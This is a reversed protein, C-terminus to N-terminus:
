TTSCSTVLLGMRSANLKALVRNNSLLVDSYLRNYKVINLNTGCLITCTMHTVGREVLTHVATQNGASKTVNDYLINLYFLLNHSCDIIM